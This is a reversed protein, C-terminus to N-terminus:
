QHGTNSAAFIAARHAGCVSCVADIHGTKFYAMADSECQKCMKADATGMSHVAGDTTAYYITGGNGVTVMVAKSPDM